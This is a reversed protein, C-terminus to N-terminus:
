TMTIKCSNAHRTSKTEVRSNHTSYSDFTHVRVRSTPLWSCWSLPQSYITKLIFPIMPDALSHLYRGIATDQKRTLAPSYIHMCLQMHRNICDLYSLIRYSLGRSVVLIVERENRCLLVLWPRWYGRDMEIQQVGVSM